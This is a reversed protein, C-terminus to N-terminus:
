FRLSMCTLGGDMKRVESVDLEVIELGMVELRKRTNPFGKPTILCDNILLTNAAYEEAKDLTIKDHAKLELDAFEETVLLTNRGVYNVSSKLHLGTEVPVVTWSNGYEELIRGLQEAGEENTRDSIGIFSHTGVMLVAGGDVTGPAQIRVTKRYRALIPKITDEEGRRSEAGPNTIVAVDPTVVATDEVFYADPYDPQAELVIVKLGLSRLTRTYAEHQKVILEYSPAGLDSTTLGQAFNGGPKRAIAYTFMDPVGQRIM